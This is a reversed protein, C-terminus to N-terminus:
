KNEKEYRMDVFYYKAKEDNGSDHYVSAGQMVYNLLINLNNLDEMDGVNVELPTYDEFSYVVKM